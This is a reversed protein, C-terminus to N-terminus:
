NTPYSRGEEQGGAPFSYHAQTFVWAHGTGRLVATMRVDRTEGIGDVVFRYTMDAMVWAVTGEAGIHVDSLDLAVTEAQAFDRELHRRYAERGIAKEDAGTGFARFEPDTLSVLSEIDKRGMADTMRRLVAMIQERTQESVRM